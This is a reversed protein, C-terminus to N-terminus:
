EVRAPGAIRADIAEDIWSYDERADRLISARVSEVGDIAQGRRRLEEAERPSNAAVVVQYDAFGSGPASPSDTTLLEDDYTAAIHRVIEGARTPPLRFALSVILLNPVRAWEVEPLVVFAGEEGMRDIRRQVTKASMGLDNAVDANPRFANGRLARLVRWDTADLERRMPPTVLDYWKEAHADGVLKLLLRLRREEEAMSRSALPIFLEGGYFAYSAVAGEVHEAERMAADVQEDDRMRFWYCAVRYGLHRYNPYVEFGTLIGSEELRKLRDAVREPSSGLRKAVSPARALSRPRPEIGYPQLGLARLIRVDFADM